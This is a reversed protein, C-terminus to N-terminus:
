SNLCSFSFVCLPIILKVLDVRLFPTDSFMISPFFAIRYIVLPIM